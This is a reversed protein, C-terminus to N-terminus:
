PLRPHCAWPALLLPLNAHGQRWTATSRHGFRRRLSGQRRARRRSWRLGKGGPTFNRKGKGKGKGKRFLADIPQEECEGCLPPDEGAIGAQVGEYFSAVDEPDATKMWEQWVEMSSVDMAAQDNDGRAYAGEFRIQQSYGMVQATLESYNTMGMAFKLKLEREHSRPLLKLFTPM